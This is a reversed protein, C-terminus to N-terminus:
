FRMKSEGPEYLVVVPAAFRFKMLMNGIRGETPIRNSNQDTIVYAISNVAVAEQAWASFFSPRPNEINAPQLPLHIRLDALIQRKARFCEHRRRSEGDARTADDVAGM